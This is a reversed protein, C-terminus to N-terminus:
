YISFSGTPLNKATVKKPVNAGGARVRTLADNVSNKEVNNKHYYGSQYTNQVTNMANTKIRDVRSSSSQDAFLNAKKNNIQVQTMQINHSNAYLLTSIRSFM